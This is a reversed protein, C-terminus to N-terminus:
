EVYEEKEDDYIETREFIEEGCEICEPGLTILKDNRADM